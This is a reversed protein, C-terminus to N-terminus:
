HHPLCLIRTPSSALCAPLGGGHEGAVRGRDKFARGPTGEVTSVRISSLPVSAKDGANGQGSEVYVGLSSLADQRSAGAWAAREELFKSIEWGGLVKKFKQKQHCKLAALGTVLSDKFSFFLFAVSYNCNGKMAMPSQLAMGCIHILMNPFCCWAVARGAWAFHEGQATNKKQLRGHTNCSRLPESLLSDAQFTPSGPKVRSNLLDEPCPFPLGSWYEQRSSEM